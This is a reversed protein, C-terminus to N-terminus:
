FCRVHCILNLGDCRHHHFSQSGYAVNHIVPGRLVRHGPGIKRCWCPTSPVLFSGRADDYGYGGGQQSAFAGFTAVNTHPQMRANRTRHLSTLGCRRCSTCTGRFPTLRTYPLDKGSPRADVAGIVCTCLVRHMVQRVPVIRSTGDVRTAASTLIAGGTPRRM